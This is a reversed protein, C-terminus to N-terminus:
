RLLRLTLQSPADALQLLLQREGLVVEEVGVLLEVALLLAVGLALAPGLVLQLM